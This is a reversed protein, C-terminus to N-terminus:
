RQRSTAKMDPHSIWAAFDTIPVAFFSKANTPKWMVLDPTVRVTGILNGTPDLIKEDHHKHLPPPEFSNPGMPVVVVDDFNFDEMTTVRGRTGLNFADPEFGCLGV